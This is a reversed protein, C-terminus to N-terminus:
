SSHESNASNDRRDSEVWQRFAALIATLKSADGNGLFRSDRAELRIWDNSGNDRILTSMTAQELATGSLDTVSWGPNDLTDIGVGHAHEWDGDCQARYWNQLWDLDDSM